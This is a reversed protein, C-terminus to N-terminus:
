VSGGNIFLIFQEWWEDETMTLPYATKFPTGPEVDGPKDHTARWEAEFRDMERALERMFTSISMRSM